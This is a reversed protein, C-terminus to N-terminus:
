IRVPEPLAKVDLLITEIKSASLQRVLEPLSAREMEGHDALAINMDSLVDALEHYKMDATIYIDAENELADIWYEGGSGGCLAVRSIKEPMDHSYFALHSLGWSAKVHELFKQTDMAEKLTGFAGLGTENDLVKIKQLGLLKALTENVGKAAVDWNTHAAIINTGSHAALLITDGQETDDTVKKLPKFILPHHCVIVNCGKSVAEAVAMRTADLCVGIKRVEDDYSGVMLGCNDWEAALSFPAFKNIRAILEIVNM